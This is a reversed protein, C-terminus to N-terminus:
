AQSKQRKAQSRPFLPFRTIDSIEKNVADHPRKSIEQVADQRSSFTRRERGAGREKKGFFKVRKANMDRLKSFLGFCLTGSFM